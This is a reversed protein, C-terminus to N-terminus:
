TCVYKYLKFTYPDQNTDLYFSIIGFKIYQFYTKEEM